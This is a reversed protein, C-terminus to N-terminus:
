QEMNRILQIDKINSLPRTYIYLWKQTSAGRIITIYVQLDLMAIEAICNTRLLICLPALAFFAPQLSLSTWNIQGKVHFNKPIYHTLMKQFNELDPM